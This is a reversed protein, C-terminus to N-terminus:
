ESWLIPTAGHLVNWVREPMTPFDVHEGGLADVIANALAAKARVKGSYILGKTELWEGTKPLISIEGAGSVSILDMVTVLGTEPDIEVEAVGVGFASTSALGEEFTGIGWGRLRGHKGSEAKRASFGTADAVTVARDLLTGLEPQVSNRKRLEVRDINLHRAAQDILREIFYVRGVQDAESRTTAPPTTTFLVKSAVDVLPIGYTSADNCAVGLAWKVPTADHLYAGASVFGRLRLALFLGKEDFALEGDFDYACSLQVRSVDEALLVARGLQRAVFETLGQRKEFGLDDSRDAVFRLRVINSARDFARVTKTYEGAYFACCTNGTANDFLPPAELAAAARPDPVVYLPEIDVSLVNAAARADAITEAVVLAVPEGVYRIRDTALWYHPPMRIPDKCRAPLDVAPAVPECGAARLDAGTWVGLVGHMTRVVDANIGKLIGHMGSSTVLLGYAQGKPGPNPM